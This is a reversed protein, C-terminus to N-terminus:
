EGLLKAIAEDGIVSKADDVSVIVADDFEKEGDRLGEEYAIM